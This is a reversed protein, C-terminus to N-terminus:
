AMARAPLQQPHHQREWDWDAAELTRTNSVTGAVRKLFGRISFDERGPYTGASYFRRLDVAEADGRAYVSDFARRLTRFTSAIAEVDLPDITFAFPEPVKELFPHQSTWNQTIPKNRLVRPEPFRPQVVHTGLSLAEFCSPAILPEGVGVYVASGRLLDHFEQPSLVGRIEVDPCCSRILDGTKYTDKSDITAIVKCHKSYERLLQSHYAPFGNKESLWPHVKSWLVCQWQRDPLPAEDKGGAVAVGLFTNRASFGPVLTLFRHLPYDTLPPIRGFFSHEVVTGDTGFTDLLWTKDAPPLNGAAKGAHVGNYDTYIIHANQYHGINPCKKGEFPWLLVELGLTALAACLDAWQTYEGLSWVRKVGFHLYAAQPWVMVSTVEWRGRRPRAWPFKTLTNFWDEMRSCMRKRMYEVQIKGTLLRKWADAALELARRASVNELGASLKAALLPIEAVCNSPSSPSSLISPSPPSQSWLQVSALSPRPTESVKPWVARPLLESPARPAPATAAQPAAAAPALQPEPRPVPGDRGDGDLLVSGIFVATASCLTAAYLCCFAWDRPGPIWPEERPARARGKM